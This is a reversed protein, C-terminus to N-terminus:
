EDEPHIKHWRTKLDRMADEFGQRSRDWRDASAVQLRHAADKTKTWARGVDREAHSGARDLKDGWEKMERKVDQMYADKKSDFNSDAVPAAYAGHDATSLRSVANASFPSAIALGVGLCSIIVTKVMGEMTTLRQVSAGAILLASGASARGLVRAFSHTGARLGRMKFRTLRRNIVVSRDSPLVGRLM